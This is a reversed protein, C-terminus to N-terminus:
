SMRLTLYGIRLEGKPVMERVMPLQLGDSRCLPLSARRLTRRTRASRGYRVGGADTDSAHSGTVQLEKGCAYAASNERSKARPTRRWEPAPGPPRRLQLKRPLPQRNSSNETTAVPPRPSRQRLQPKRHETPPKRTSGCRNRVCPHRVNQHLTLHSQLAAARNRCDPQATVQTLREGPAHGPADLIASVTDIGPIPHRAGQSTGPWRARPLTAIATAEALQWTSNCLVNVQGPGAM